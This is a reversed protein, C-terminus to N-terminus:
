TMLLGPISFFPDSCRSERLIKLLPVSNIDPLSRKTYVRMYPDVTLYLASILIEGNELEPLNEEVLEFDEHKPM